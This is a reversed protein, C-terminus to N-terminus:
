PKDRHKSEETGGQSRGLGGKRGPPREVELAEDGVVGMETTDARVQITVGGSKERPTPEM